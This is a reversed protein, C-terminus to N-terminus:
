DPHCEFLSVLDTLYISESGEASEIYFCEKLENYSVFLRQNKSAFSVIGNPSHATIHTNTSQLEIRSFIHIKWFKGNARILLIVCLSSPGCRPRPNVVM